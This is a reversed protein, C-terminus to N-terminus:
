KGGLKKLMEKLQKVTAHQMSSQVNAVVEKPYGKKWLADGLKKELTERGLSGELEPLIKRSSMGTIIDKEKSAVHKLKPTVPRMYDAKAVAKAQKELGDLIGGQREYTSVANKMKSKVVPLFEEGRQFANKMGRSLLEEPSTLYVREAFGAILKARHEDGKQMLNQATLRLRQELIQARQHVKKMGSMHHKLMIMEPNKATYNKLMTSIAHGMEHYGSEALDELVRLDARTNFKIKGGLYGKKLDAPTPGMHTAKIDGRMVGAEVDSIKDWFKQPAKKSMRQFNKLVAEYAEGTYAARAKAIEKLRGALRLPSIAPMMDMAPQDHQVFQAPDMVSGMMKGQDKRSLMQPEPGQDTGVPYFGRKLFSRPHLYEKVAQPVTGVPLGGFNWDPSKIKMQTIIDDPM